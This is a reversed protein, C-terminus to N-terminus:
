NSLSTHLLAKELQMYVKETAYIDGFDFSEVGFHINSFLTKNARLLIIKQGEIDVKVSKLAQVLKNYADTYEKEIENYKKEIDGIAEKIEAMKNQYKKLKKARQEKKESSLEIEYKQKKLKQMEIDEEYFKIDIELEDIIKKTTKTTKKSKQIILSERYEKLRENIEDILEPLRDLEDKMFKNANELEFIKMRIEEYRNKESADIYNEKAIDVAKKLEMLNDYEEEKIKYLSEYEKPKILTCNMLQKLGLKKTIKIFERPDFEDRMLSIVPTINKHSHVAGKAGIHTLGGPTIQKSFNFNKLFDGVTFELTYNHIAQPKKTTLIVTELEPYYKAWFKGYLETISKQQEKELEAFTKEELIIELYKM